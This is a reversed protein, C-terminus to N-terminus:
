NLVSSDYEPFRGMESCLDICDMHECVESFLMNLRLTRDYHEM